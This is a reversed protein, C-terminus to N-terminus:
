QNDMLLTFAEDYTKRCGIYGNRCKKVDFGGRANPYVGGLYGKREKAHLRMHQGRTVPALNSIENNEKNGDIHHIEYGKPIEGIFAEYVLRHVLRKGEGVDVHLHGTGNKHVSLEKPKMIYGEGNKQNPRFFGKSFVRGDSSIEYKDNINAKM